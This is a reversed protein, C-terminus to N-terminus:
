FVIGAGIEIFNHLGRPEQSYLAPNETKLINNFANDFTLDFILATSNKIILEVGAGVILSQRMLAIEENISHKSISASGGEYEFEDTAKADLNFSTGMGIKGFIRIKDSLDTQMKLCLPIQLYKLHYKRHLMGEILTGNNYVDMKYPYELKGGNFNVNFGTLIAYNEMFFFESIFGWTFGPVAGDSKMDDSGAKMWGINGGVKLGFLVPKYQAHVNNLAILIIILLLIKKM